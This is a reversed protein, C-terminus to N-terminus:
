FSSCRTAPRSTTASFTCPSTSCRSRRHSRRQDPQLASTHPPLYGARGLYRRLAHPHRGPLRSPDDPRPPGWGGHLSRIAPREARDPRWRHQAGRQLELAFHCLGRSLRRLRGQRRLVARFHLSLADSFRRPSLSDSWPTRGATSPRDTTSTTRRTRSRCERQTTQPLAPIDDLYSFNRGSRGFLDNAAGLYQALTISPSDFDFYDNHVAQLTIASDGFQYRAKGEVHDRSIDGPGRWLDGRIRSGSVYASFGGIAGSEVRAFSRKLADSGFTQSLRVGFTDAPQATIYSM